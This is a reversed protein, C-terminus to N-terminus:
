VAADVVSRLTLMHAPREVIVFNGRAGRQELMALGAKHIRQSNSTLLVVPIDSWKPQQQFVQSLSEIASPFLAEEALIIASVGQSVELCLQPVTGCNEALIGEKGLMECILPADRGRPAVVLVRREKGTATM